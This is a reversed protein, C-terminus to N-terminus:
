VPDAPNDKAVTKVTMSIVEGCWAAWHRILHTFKIYPVNMADIEAKKAFLQPLMKDISEAVTAGLTRAKYIKDNVENAYMQSLIKRKGAQFQQVQATELEMRKSLDAANMGIGFEKEIFELVKGVSSLEEKDKIFEIVDRQKNCAFCFISQSAPYYRSSPNRDEGHFECSLQHSEDSKWDLGYFAFVGRFPLNERVYDIKTKLASGAKRDGVKEGIEIKM